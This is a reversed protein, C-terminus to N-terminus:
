QNDEKATMYGLVFPLICIAVYTLFTSWRFTDNPTCEIVKGVEMYVMGATFCFYGVFLMGWYNM